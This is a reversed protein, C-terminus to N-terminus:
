VALVVPVYGGEFKIIKFNYSVTFHRQVVVCYLTGKYWVQSGDETPGLFLKLERTRRSKSRQGLVSCASAANYLLRHPYLIVGIRDIDVCM